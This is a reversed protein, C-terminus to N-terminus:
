EERGWPAVRFLLLMGPIAILTCFVFFNMWGLQEALYGTGAGLVVRPVGMLSTLLAYQTATFRRNCLSAMFAAFASTGMGGTLNEFAVVGALAPLSDGMRALWSFSLTSVAQLAGFIWLSRHIGIRLLLVGGALGGLIVAWFGFLKAVMGISTKSFGMDLYFPNFMEAAMSDGIKYLLIFALIKMAGERQFFDSFPRFVAEALSAPPRAEEEPNPSLLTAVVGIGMCGAMVLYVGRWSVSDSLTAAVAGAVLMGARYGNIALASGLGLEEDRLLDRRYADVAIDQSASCFAVLFAVWAVSWPSTAPHTTALGAIGLLLAVQWVLIWGRRRGLFPPVYRDMLPAWLFKLTYPLGVLSFVGILTLDIKEDRMWLKLTGGVLLLPLGSSFGLVLVSLM